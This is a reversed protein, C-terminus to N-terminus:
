LVGMIKVYDESKDHMIRFGKELEELSFRHSILMDPMMTKEALRNLVGHLQADNQSQEAGEGKEQETLEGAVKQEV